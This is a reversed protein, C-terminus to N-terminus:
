SIEKPEDVDLLKNLRTIIKQPLQDAGKLESIISITKLQLIDKKSPMFCSIFISILSVVFIPILGKLFKDSAKRTAKDWAEFRKHLYILFGILSCIVGVSGFNVFFINLNPVVVLMFYNIM